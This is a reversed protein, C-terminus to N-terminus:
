EYKTQYGKPIVHINVERGMFKMMFSITPELVNQGKENKGRKKYIVERGGPSHISKLHSYSQTSGITNWADKLKFIDEKSYKEGISWGDRASEEVVAKALETNVGERQLLQAEFRSMEAMAAIREAAKREQQIRNKREQDVASIKGLITRISQRIGKKKDKNAMNLREFERMLEEALANFRGEELQTFQSVNGTTLNITEEQSIVARIEHTDGAETMKLMGNVDGTKLLQTVDSRQLTAGRKRPSGEGHGSSHRTPQRAARDGMVDAEVELVEDDNISMGNVQATPTVRNQKQQVVHWAEHPLHKEQGPAIHIDTGQTYALANLQVPRSSNYHVRVEDMPLGSLSEIGAKLNAPLGKYNPKAVTRQTEASQQVAFMQSVARNGKLQQVRLVGAPSGIMPRARVSRAQWMVPSPNNAGAQPARDIQQTMRATSTSGEAQRERNNM